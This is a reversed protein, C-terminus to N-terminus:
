KDETTNDNNSLPPNLLLIENQKIENDSLRKQQDLLREQIQHTLNNFLLRGVVLPPMVIIVVLALLVCCGCCCSKVNTLTKNSM